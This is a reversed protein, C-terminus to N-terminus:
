PKMAMLGSVIVDTNHASRVGWAGDTSKLRGAMVLSDKPASWVEAGNIKCSVTNGKVVVSIDQSVPQDKAAAKNVSPLLGFKAHSLSGGYPLETFEDSDRIGDNNTDRWQVVKYTGANKPNKLESEVERSLESVSSGGFALITMGTFLPSDGKVNLGLDGLVKRALSNKVVRLSIKKKRLNTRLAGNADNDLKNIGMVVFDRTSGFESKLAAIQMNKVQKSM